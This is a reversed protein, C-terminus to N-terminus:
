RSVKKEKGDKIEPYEDKWLNAKKEDLYKNITKAPILGGDKYAFLITGNHYCHRTGHRYDQEDPHNSTVHGIVVAREKGADHLLSSFAECFNGLFPSPEASKCGHIEVKASNTFKGFKIEGINSELARFGLPDSIFGGSQTLASSYLASQTLHPLYKKVAERIRKIGPEKDFNPQLYKEHFTYDPSTPSHFRTNDELKSSVLFLAAWGGHCIFDVSQISDDNQANINATVIAGSFVPRDYVSSEHYDKRVEKMGYYFASNDGFSKAGGWFILRLYNATSAATINPLVSQPYTYYPSLKVTKEVKPQADDGGYLGPSSGGYPPEEAGAGYPATQTKGYAM